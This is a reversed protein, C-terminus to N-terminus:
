RFYLKQQTLYFLIYVALLFPNSRSKVSGEISAQPIKATNEEGTEVPVYYVKGYYITAYKLM